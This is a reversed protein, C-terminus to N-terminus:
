AGIVELATRIFRMQTAVRDDLSFESPTEFTFTVPCGRLNLEIAEPMGPLNAPIKKPRILGHRARQGDIRTRPDAAIPKACRTLIERGLPQRRRSLEYLYCGQADYDEHLCIGAIMARGKIWTQWAISFPDDTLHFRRNLDHGLHDARTNLSTGIPNVLPLLLFSGRQLMTLNKEAWLLLGWISGPEDGHVGTSLYVAPEGAKAAQSEYAIVAHGEVTTLTTAHLGAAKQLAKWRRMIERVNHAHHLPLLKM